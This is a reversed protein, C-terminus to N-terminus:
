VSFCTVHITGALLARGTGNAFVFVLALLTSTVISLKFGAHKSARYPVNWFVGRARLRKHLASRSGRPRSASSPAGPLAERAKGTWLFCLEASNVRSSSCCVMAQRVTATSATEWDTRQFSIRSLLTYKTGSSRQTEDSVKSFRLGWESDMGHCRDAAGGGSSRQRREGSSWDRFSVWRRHRVNSRKSFPQRAVHTAEEDCCSASWHTNLMYCETQLLKLTDVRRGRQGLLRGHSAAPLARCSVADLATLAEVKRAAEPSRAEAENTGPRCM